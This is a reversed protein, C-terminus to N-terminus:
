IKHIFVLLIYNFITFRVVDIFHLLFIKCVKRNFFFFDKENGNELDKLISENISKKIWNFYTNSHEWEYLDQTSELGILKQNYVM